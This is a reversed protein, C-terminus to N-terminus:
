GGAKAFWAKARIADQPELGHGAPLTQADLNAGSARLLAELAPAYTGYPDNAGSLMLVETGTLDAVPPAELVPMARLLVARRIVTPHLLLIAGLLNAGNSYGLYTTRAPDLGYATTADRIFQAFAEAEFRIDAQDFTAMSLRRFWRAVGEEHSRGRVGLLTADPAIQHALPMLDAENGGTGHLLVITSGDPADPTHFRHTFGLDRLTMREDGPLSFQPLMLRIANARDQDSPPIMLTTGLSEFLEDVMMGPRDTALEILIGGPERVYLSTFYKRDHLTTVSSNLRSLGAEMATISAVDVARFAVHDAMGTGPTGPWFGTADRIDVHDGTQSTLRRIGGSQATEHYGFRAVFAATEDPTETLFTVSHLAQVATVGLAPPPSVARRESGVLKVIVGDPDRLWLVSAGFERLPGEHPVRMDMARSIWFGTSDQPIALAIESVQGHGVRGSAGDQWVLFTILSGPSGVADGYFMHLQEADEFGGTQKVLRLGLFGAYFDVNEQVSATILTVHHLGSAM